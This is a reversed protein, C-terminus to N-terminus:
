PLLDVESQNCEIVYEGLEVHTTMGALILQTTVQEIDLISSRCVPSLKSLILLTIHGKSM